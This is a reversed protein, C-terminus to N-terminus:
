VSVGITLATKVSKGNVFVEVHIHTARGSYWGPYVTTFTV